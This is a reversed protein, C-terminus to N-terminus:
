IYINRERNLERQAIVLEKGMPIRYHWIPNNEMFSVGKGKTTLAIIALPKDTTRFHLMRFVSLLEEFSHGDVTVVEWGFSIWKKELPDIDLSKKLYDIASIGNCDIIAFLNNLRHHAAFMAAEWVSGEHCEADGLLAVSIYNKKNFKGALALGASISLGHGLSGTFAEVGPVSNEPHGGLRSGKRTFTMLEKKPFFGLDALIAYLAVAAQGKSLVFRDRSLQNPNKPNIHLIGGYYLAVLIDICSFSPAIHGAGAKVTMELVKKRVWNAKAELKMVSKKDVKNKNVLCNKM